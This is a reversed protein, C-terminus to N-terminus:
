SMYLRSYLQEHQMSRIDFAPCCMGIMDRDPVLAKQALETILQHLRFLLVQGDQQGLPILKVSNTVMGAAANYFFANLTALKDLKMAASYFGFFICYHGICQKSRIKELYFSSCTSSVLPEFIKSLRLGIKKSSERMERPLKVATCEMDLAIITQFDNQLAAEYALSVLAADTPFLNNRLQGEIFDKATEVNHVIGEQVYTELGASHAFGGIPLTLDTLQLLRLLKADTM